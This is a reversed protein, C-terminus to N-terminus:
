RNKKFNILSVSLGVGFGCVTFNKQKKLNKLNENILVPISTSVLNGYKSLNQPITIKNNLSKKIKEIVIKSGQHSFLLGCNKSYKKLIPIVHRLTFEVVAPGNMTIFKTFILNGQSNISNHFYSRNIKFGNKDYGIISASAADSFISRTAVNDNKIFKSYTDATVILIKSKKSNKIILYSLYLADVYGTCGSNLNICNVKELKLKSAVFNSIGPFKIKPTNTVSIIHTIRNITTKNIKKIVKLALNEAFVDKNCVYRKNVGTLKKLSGKKLNYEIELDNNKEIKTGLCFFINEFNIM